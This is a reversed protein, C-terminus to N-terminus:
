GPWGCCRGSSPSPPTGAPSTSWRSGRGTGALERARGVLAPDLELRADAATGGQPKLGFFGPAQARFLRM